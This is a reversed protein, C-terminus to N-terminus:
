RIGASLLLRHLRLHLAPPPPEYGEAFASAFLSEYRATKRDIVANPGYFSADSGDSTALWGVGASHDMVVLAGDEFLVDSRKSSQGAQWTTLIRGVGVREMSSFTATGQYTEFTNLPQNISIMRDLTVFRDILSLANIGSDIWSSVYVARRRSDLTRYPDAFSCTWSIVPGHRAGWRDLHGVAWEVEAATRFHYLVELARNDEAAAEVVRDIQALETGLPKEVLIRATGGTALLSECIGVHTPTPTAVIVDDLEHKTVLEEVTRYVPLDAGRFTLHADPAPDVGAKLLVTAM